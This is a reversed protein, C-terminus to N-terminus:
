PEALADLYLQRRSASMAVIDRESWGYARALDRVDVVVNRVAKEVEAWAFAPPDLLEVWDAGCAPCSLGLTIEAAPDADALAAEVADRLSASLPAAGSVSVICRDLLAAGDAPGTALDAATPVRVVADTGDVSVTLERTVADRLDLQDVTVTVDLMEGCEPCAAVADIVGGFQEAHVALVARDREGASLTAADDTRRGLVTLLDLARVAPLQGHAHEWLDLLLSATAM